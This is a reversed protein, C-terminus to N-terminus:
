RLVAWRVVRNVLVKIMPRDELRQTTYQPHKARLAAVVHPHRPDSPHFLAALGELRLWALRAWDEDWRDALITVRPDAAIDRLRPASRDRESLVPDAVGWDIGVDPDDWAFGRELSADYYASCRYVVDAIESLVVFGHAFGIPVFVQRLDDDDLRVAEWRGYTPSGRRIDVAVDLIAGRACRVLKAQGEGVAFHMGRLVGRASRSHNDQVWAGPIGAARFADARATEAFFGRDDRHVAPAIVLLGPLGTPTIEM